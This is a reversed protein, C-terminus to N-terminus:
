EELKIGWKKALTETFHREFNHYLTASDSLQCTMGGDVMLSTGTVFSAEDSALFVAAHAIDIPRGYRGIPYPIESQRKRQPDAALREASREVAIFGPCIANARIGHPGYDVAINKTLNILGAKATDYVSYSSSALIGHVSSVNIISGSGQRIMQPLAENCAIFPAKLLIALSRDWDEDTLDTAKGHVYSFANNMLVDLRGYTAIAFRILDRVAQGELLDAGRYSAEGGAARIEEVLSEGLERRRGNVVVRAGQLAFQRATERGIGSTSGTVVAVKGALRDGLRHGPSGEPSASM